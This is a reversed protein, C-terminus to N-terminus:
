LGGGQKTKAHESAMRLIDHAHLFVGVVVCVHFIQHSQCWLDFKGPWFREPIRFTYMILGVVYVMGMLVLPGVGATGFQSSTVLGGYFVIAHIVPIVGYLGLALFVAARVPRYSPSAFRKILSVGICLLGFLVMLSAYVAQLIPRTYFAYYVWTIFSAMILMSVGVYDFGICVRFVKASYCQFCHFIWSFLLCCFAGLLFIGFIWRDKWSLNGLPGVYAYVVFICFALWGILHTWINGTETHMSFISRLCQRFSHLQPRYHARIFNNDQLWSPQHTFDLLWSSNEFSINFQENCSQVSEQDVHEELLMAGNANEVSGRDLLAAEGEM